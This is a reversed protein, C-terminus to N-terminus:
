AKTAKAEAWGYLSHVDYHLLERDNGQKAFMCLTNDSLRNKPGFKSGELICIGMGHM